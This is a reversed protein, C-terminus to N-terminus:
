GAAKGPLTLCQALNPRSFMWPETEVHQIGQCRWQHFGDLNATAAGHEVTDVERFAGAARGVGGHKGLKLTVGAM